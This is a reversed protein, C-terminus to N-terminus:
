EGSGEVDDTAEVDTEEVDDSVDDDPSENGDAESDSDSADDTGDEQMSADEDVPPGGYLAGGPADDCAVLAGTLLAAGAIAPLPGLLRSRSPTLDPRSCEPCPADVRKFAGCSSCIHLM